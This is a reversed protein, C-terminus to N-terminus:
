YLCLQCAMSLPSVVHYHRDRGSESRFDLSCVTCTIHRESMVKHKHFAEDDEFDEDCINCYDHDQMKHKRLDAEKLFGRKCDTYPCPFNSTHSASGAAIGALPKPPQIPESQHSVARHSSAQMTSPQTWTLKGDKIMGKPTPPQGLAEDIKQQRTKPPLPKIQKSVARSSEAGNSLMKSSIAKSLHIGNSVTENDMVKSSGVGNSVMKRPVAAALPMKSSAPKSSEAGKPAMKGLVSPDLNTALNGRYNHRIPPDNEWAQPM